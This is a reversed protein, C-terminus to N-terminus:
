EGADTGADDDACLPQRPECRVCQGDASVQPYSDGSCSRELDCQHCCVFGWCHDFALEAPTPGPEGADTGADPTAADTPVAVAADDELVVVVGDDAVLRPPGVYASVSADLAFGGAVSTDCAALLLFALTRLTRIAAIMSRIERVSYQGGRVRLWHSKHRPNLRGGVRGWTPYHRDRMSAGIDRLLRDIAIEHEARM